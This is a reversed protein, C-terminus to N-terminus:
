TYTVFVSNVIERLKICLWPLREGVSNRYSRVVRSHYLIRRFNIRISFVHWFSVSNRDCTCRGASVKKARDIRKDSIPRRRLNRRKLRKGFSRVARRTSKVLKAIRRTWRVQRETNRLYEGEERKFSHFRKGRNRESWDELKEHRDVYRTSIDCNLSSFNFRISKWEM